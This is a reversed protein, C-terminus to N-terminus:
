LRHSANELPITQPKPRPIEDVNQHERELDRVRRQLAQVKLQEENLKIRLTEVAEGGSGLVIPNVVFSLRMLEVDRSEEMRQFVKNLMVTRMLVEYVSLLLMAFTAVLGMTFVIKSSATANQVSKNIDLVFYFQCTVTLLSQAVKSWTCIRFMRLDPYGGSQFVFETRRWPMFRLLSTELMSLMALVGYWLSHQLMQNTSIMKAYDLSVTVPGYLRFHLYGAPITHFLRGLLVFIGLVQYTLVTSTILVAMLIGESALSAGTLTLGLCFSFTPLQVVEDDRQRLRILWFAFVFFASSLGGLIYFPTDGSMVTAMVSEALVYNISGGIPAATPFPYEGKLSIRVIVEDGNYACANAITGRPTVTITLLGGRRKVLSSTVMVNIPNCTYWGAPELPTSTESTSSKVGTPVLPSACTADLAAPPPTCQSVASSQMSGTGMLVSLSSDSSFGTDYVQVELYWRKDLKGLNGISITQPLANFLRPFRVEKVIPATMLIPFLLTPNQSPYSSPASSPQGSPQSSPKGTPTLIPQSTPSGTPQGSPSPTPAVTPAPAVSITCCTGGGAPGTSIGTRCSEPYFQHDIVQSCNTSSYRSLPCTKCSQFLPLSLGAEINYSSDPCNICSSQGAKDQFKGPSCLTCQSIPDGLISFSGASCQSCATQGVRQNFWGAPCPKCSSSSNQNALTSYTGIRCAICSKGSQFYGAPCFSLCESGFPFLDGTCSSLTVAILGDALNVGQENSLITSTEIAFNSGGGGGSYVCGGGGGFYGGGGGGGQFAGNGGLALVGRSSTYGSVVAGSGGNVQSGGGGGVGGRVSIGSAGSFGGGGGGRANFSGAGGGGGAVALLNSSNTRSNSSRIETAGAGVSSGTGGGYLSNGHCAVFFYLTQFPMVPLSTISLFGGLGGPTSPNFNGGQAGYLDFTLSQASSPVIWERVHGTCPFVVRTSPLCLYNGANEYGNECVIQITLSGHAGDRCVGDAVSPQIIQENVLIESDPYAYSSGGGGGYNGSGSGGGYWGGGGGGSGSVKGCSGGAGFMGDQAGGTGCKGGATQTGGTAPNVFVQGYLTANGGILGGGAGGNAYFANSGGEYGSGGGGGAVILRSKLDDIVSRIDTAGGGNGSTYWGVGGGNWSSGHNYASGGSGGIFIYLTQNFKVPIKVKMRGGRGGCQFSNGYPGGVGGGGAGYADVIIEKVNSPVVWTQYSQTFSFAMIGWSRSTPNSTPNWSPRGSPQGTPVLTPDAGVSVVLCFYVCLVTCYRLFPALIMM